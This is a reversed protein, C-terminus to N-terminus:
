MGSTWSRPHSLIVSAQTGGTLILQFGPNNPGNSHHFGHRYSGRQGRGCVSVGRLVHLAYLSTRRPLLSYVPDLGTPRGSMWQSSVQIPQRPRFGSCWGRRSRALISPTAATPSARGSPQERSRFSGTIRTDSGIFPKFTTEISDLVHGASGSPVPGLRAHLRELFLACPRHAGRDPGGSRHPRIWRITDGVLCVSDRYTVQGGSAFLTDSENLLSGFQSLLKFGNHGCHMVLELEVNQNLKNQIWILSDIKNGVVVTDTALDEIVLHIDNGNIDTTDDNTFYDLGLMGEGTFAMYATDVAFDDSIVKGWGTNLGLSQPTFQVSLIATQGPQIELQPNVVHFQAVDSMVVDEIKGLQNTSTNRVSIPFGSGPLSDGVRTDALPFFVSDRLQGSANVLKLFGIGTGQIPLKVVQFVPYTFTFTLTDQYFGRENPRFSVTFPATSPLYACFGFGSTDCADPDPPIALTVTDGSFEVNIQSSFNLQNKADVFVFKVKNTDLPGITFYGIMSVALDAVATNRKVVQGFDWQTFQNSPIQPDDAAKHLVYQQARAPTSGLAVVGVVAAWM